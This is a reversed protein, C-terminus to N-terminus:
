KQNSKDQINYYSDILQISNESLVKRVTNKIDIDANFMQLSIIPVRVTIETGNNRINSVYVNVTSPDTIFTSTLLADHILKTLNDYNINKDFNSVTFFIKYLRNNNKTHNIIVYKQLDSNPITHPVSSSYITTAFLGFSDVTGIIGNIEIIDGIEFTDSLSVVVGSTISQLTPQLALGSTVGIAAILAILTSTQVGFNSIIMIIGFLFIVYYSLDSLQSYILSNKGNSPNMFSKIYNKAYTAITSFMLYILLSKILLPIFSALYNKIDNIVAM